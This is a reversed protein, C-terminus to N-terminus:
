HKQKWTQFTKATNLKHERAFHEISQEDAGSEMLQILKEHEMLSDTTRHPILSFITSRVADIKAENKHIESILYTQDCSEYIKKHFKRNLLSYEELDFNARSERMKENITRLEDFDEHTLHPYALATAYGELLALVTLTELYVKNDIKTVRAGINPEYELLGEAELRRIAERIPISSFGLEKALGDLVLRYGASYTGDLIRSRILDYAKEQKNSLNSTKNM